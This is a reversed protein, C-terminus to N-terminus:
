LLDTVRAALWDLEPDSLGLEALHAATMALYEANPGRGGVARAIVQAQTELDLSGCYQRHATDVVYTVAQVVHGATLRIPLWVERYASSILERARLGTLTADVDAEAVAFAVGACHGGERPELALVLGPDDETGRHHVSWMCFGRRYGELVALDRGLHPFDPNWVLSGYGFVWLAAGDVLDSRDM